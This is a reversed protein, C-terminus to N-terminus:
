DKDGRRAELIPDPGTSVQPVIVGAQQMREALGGISMSINDTSQGRELREHDHLIGFAVVKDRLGAKKIDAATMGQLVEIQKIALIDARHEKFTEVEAIKGTEWSMGHRAFAMLVATKSLGILKALHRQSIEPYKRKLALISEWPTNKQTAPHPEYHGPDNPIETVTTIESGPM